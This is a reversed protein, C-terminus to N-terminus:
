VKTAGLVSAALKQFRSNKADWPINGLQQVNRKLQQGNKQDLKRQNQNQQDLQKKVQTQVTPDSGALDAAVDAPDDTPTPPLLATEGLIQALKM